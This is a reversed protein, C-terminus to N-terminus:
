SIWVKNKQRRVGLEPYKYINLKPNYMIDSSLVLCCSHGSVAPANGSVSCPYWKLPSFGLLYADGSIENDETIGGHLWMFQGVILAAHSKRLKLTNKTYIIPTTWKDNDLDYIELDAYYTYQDQKSKGGFIYLKKQFLVCSHGFRYNAPSNTPM